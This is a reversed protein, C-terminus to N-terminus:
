HHTYITTDPVVEILQMMGRDEHTLIHCHLVYQGTFDVFRTRMVFHGPITVTCTGSACALESRNRIAPPCQDKTTCTSAPLTDIRSAPIAFTDWWEFNSQPGTCPGYPRWTDPKTPDAACKGGPKADPSEPQFVEIIQFPNIHIHFPHEKDNDLNSVTWEETSNLLMSQNIHHDNFQKGNIRLGRLDQFALERRTHVDAAPIDNLFTPFVPFSQVPVFPMAPAIATGEVNVTLLVEMQPVPQFKPPSGGAACGANQPFRCLGAQVVLDYKGPTSPAQMLVDARNAPALNFQEDQRKGQLRTRQHQGPRLQRRRVARRGAGDPELAHVAGRNPPQVHHQPGPQAPSPQRVFGQFLAADREAGNIFRFLEVQNPLMTIVPHRRGNVSLVPVPKTHPGGGVPNTLNLLPTLQQIVLVQDKFQGTWSPNSGYFKRLDEDYAGEIILAGVMGNAVNLATSGHKHAHYWHTGPSQGMAVRAPDYAPLPFCYPTAGIQYQPWLRQAIEQRNVPALQLHRPLAKPKGQYPTNADYWNVADRQATQWSAPM